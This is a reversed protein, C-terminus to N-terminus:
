KLLTIKRKRLNYQHSHEKDSQKLSPKPGTAVNPQKLTPIENTLLYNQLEIKINREKPYCPVIHNRHIKIQEKNNDKLIFTTETPKDIILYPGTKLPLLNKSVGDIQQQNTVLTFTNKELPKATRFRLNMEDTLKKRNQLIKTITQYRDNYHKEKDFFRKAFIGKQLKAIKPHSFQKELHTHEPQTNCASKETPNCNGMEDTTSGLKIKTPKRPKQNVVVEYPSMGIRTQYQTNYAYPFYKAKWSWNQLKEHLLTRIFQGIIRNTGEVLGNTWPAYTTSPKFKIEFYNCLHTLETNIYESGNDSRIEEPLGLKMFWHKSYHQSHM